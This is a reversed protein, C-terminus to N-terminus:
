KTKRSRLDDIEARLSDVQRWMATNEDTIRRDLAEEVRDIHRYSDDFRSDLEREDREKAAIWSKVLFYVFGSTTVILAIAIPLPINDTM